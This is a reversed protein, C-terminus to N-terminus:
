IDGKGLLINKYKYFTKRSIGGKEMLENDSANPNDRILAEVRKEMGLEGMSNLFLPHVLDYLYLDSKTAKSRRNLLANARMFTKIYDQARAASQVGYKDLEMAYDVIRDEIEKSRPFAVDAKKDDEIKDPLPLRIIPRRVPPNKMSRQSRLRLSERKMERTVNHKFPPVRDFFTADLLASRFKSLKESALGFLVLISVKTISNADRAYNGELLGSWFNQLQQRQKIDMGEFAIILDHLVLIKNHFYERPKQVLQSEFIKHPLVRFHEPNSAALMRELLESKGTGKPAVVMCSNLKQTDESMKLNISMCNALVIITPLLWGMLWSHVKGVLELGTKCDRLFRKQDLKSARQLLPSRDPRAAESQQCLREITVTAGQPSSKGATKRRKSRTRGHHKIRRRSHKL